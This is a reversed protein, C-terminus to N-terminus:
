QELVLKGRDHTWRVRSLFTMGLLNVDLAQDPLVYAPVDRVVIGGVEVQRLRVPAARGVGNATHIKARYEHESPRIGLRAAVSARLAILSAGTDLLFDVRQGDVRAAVQFHGAANQRLTVSPGNPPAPVSM